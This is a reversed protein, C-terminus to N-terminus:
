QTFTVIDDKLVNNKMISIFAMLVTYIVLYITKRRLNKYKDTIINIQCNICKDKRIYETKYEVRTEVPAFFPKRNKLERIDKEKETLETNLSDIKKQLQETKESLEKNTEHLTKNENNLKMMLRDTESQVSSQTESPQPQKPIIQKLNM